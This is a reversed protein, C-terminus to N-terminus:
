QKATPAVDVPAPQKTSKTKAAANASSGTKTKPPLPQPNLSVKDGVSTKNKESPQPDPPLPQPNISVKSGPSTKGKDGPQPDPPLPQPNISVKSGPSVKGSQTVGPPEPQPNLRVKGKVLGKENNPAQAEHQKAKQAPAKKQAKKDETDQAFALAGALLTVMGIALTKKMM